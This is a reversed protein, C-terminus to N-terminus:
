ITQKNLSLDLPQLQSTLGGPVVVLDCCSEKLMKKVFETLHGKFADLVLMYPPNCSFGPRRNWVLKILSFSYFTCSLESNTATYETHVRYGVSAKTFTSSRHLISIILLREYPLSPSPLNILCDLM